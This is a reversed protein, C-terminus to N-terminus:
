EVEQLIIKLDHIKHHCEAQRHHRGPHTYLYGIGKPHCAALEVDGPSDGIAVIGGPFHKDQMFENLWDKKTLHTKAYTDAALRHTSPFFHELRVSALFIDLSHPQTNSLVIQTHRSQHIAHLVEEAWPTPKIYKAIIEPHKQSITICADQLKKCEEQTLEPVLHVFYEYWRKGSLQEAEQTSLRRHYGQEQLVRNTIEIVAGDNGHELTGHFDWVFLKEGKM